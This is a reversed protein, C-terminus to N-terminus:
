KNALDAVSKAECYSVVDVLSKHLNASGIHLFEAFQQYSPQETDLLDVIVKVAFMPMCFQQCIWAVAAAEMEKIIAGSAQIIQLDKAITELSNGTSVEGQKLLLDKAMASVDVSPYSGVGYQPFNTYPIRRDHYRFVGCSLYVDGIKCGRNKLGGATGASIIIDPAINTITLYTALTAPQTGINDVKHQKDEGNWIVFIETSNYFGSFVQMPVLDAFVCTNKTLSLRDIFPKAEDMMAM